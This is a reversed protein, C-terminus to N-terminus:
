NLDDGASKRCLVPFRDGDRTHLFAGSALPQLGTLQGGDDDTLWFRGDRGLRDADMVLAGSRRNTRANGVQRLWILDDLDVDESNDEDDTYFRLAVDIQRVGLEFLSEIEDEELSRNSNTDFWLRLYRWPRDGASVVSDENTDFLYFGGCPPVVPTAAQEDALVEQTTAPERAPRPETAIAPEGSQKAEPTPETETEPGPPSGIVAEEPKRAQDEQWRREVEQRLDEPLIELLDEIQQRLELIRQIVEEQSTAPDVEEARLPPGPLCPWLLLGATLLFSRPM